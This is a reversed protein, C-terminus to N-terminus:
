FMLKLFSKFDSFSNSNNLFWISKVKLLKSKIIVGLAGPTARLPNSYVPEAIKLVVQDKIPLGHM